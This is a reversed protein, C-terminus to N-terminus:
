SPWLGELNKMAKEVKRLGSLIDNQASTNKDNPVYEELFIRNINRLEKNIADIDVKQAPTRSDAFISGAELHEQIQKSREIVADPLGALKAVFIGHSKDAGGPVVKRLFTINDGDERVQMRYNAVGPVKGEAATMEHYHTAFLTKASIEASIHEVVALAISFGDVTGTGRGIEDLIVLSRRTANALINATERMEVMFTSQGRALDDAAGVRTFVRDCIPLKAADAPVFSGMQAMICILAVQRLYTSKGAMNPGTLIAIKNGMNDLYTDNPVFGEGSLREVVPHRGNKIDIPGAADMQPRVYNYDKAIKALSQLVDITATMHATLQLRPVEQAIEKRFQSWLRQEIQEISETATLIDVQLQVLEDTVYRECNSLTQKRQYHAPVADHQSNPVEIYYGFIKNQGVKLGKIGTAQKESQELDTVALLLQNKLNRAADLDGDYGNAFMGAGDTDSPPTESFARNIKGHVDTLIDLNEWFYANLVSATGDLLRKVDAIATISRGLATFDRATVRWYTLKGCLREIDAIKGLAERIDELRAPNEAFEGVAEHRTAIDKSSVLPSEMWKRLLRKGMPTQAQDMAWFLTGVTDKERLTEGLELNRYTHRDLIMFDSPSYATIKHIHPMTSQQTEHLYQLLAASAGLCYKDFNIINDAGFHSTLKEQAFNYLFAWFHYYNPAVGIELKIDAIGPFDPSAIIERPNIKHMEDILKDFSNLSATYFDGTAVDAYALGFAADDESYIAAIYNGASQSDDFITGPTYIRVVKRKMLEGKKGEDDPMQECLAVKHGAEVLRLIYSEAAHHPLGCMPSKGRGAERSTLHLGLLESAIRADDFFLEYFDGLRFFLLADKHKEKIELYQQMMPSYHSLFDGSEM